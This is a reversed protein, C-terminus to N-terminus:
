IKEYYKSGNTSTKRKAVVTSYKHVAEMLVKLFHDMELGSHEANVAFIVTQRKVQHRNENIQLSIIIM